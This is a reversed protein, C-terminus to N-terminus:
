SGHLRRERSPETHAGKGARTLFEAGGETLTDDILQVGM